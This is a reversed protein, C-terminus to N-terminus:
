LNLIVITTIIYGFECDLDLIGIVARLLTLMGNGLDLPANSNWGILLSHSYVLMIM